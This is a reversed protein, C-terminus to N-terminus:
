CLSTCISWFSFKCGGGTCEYELTRPQLLLERAMGFREFVEFIDTLTLVAVLPRYSGTVLGGRGFELSAVFANFDAQPLKVLPGYGAERIERVDDASRAIWDADSEVLTKFEEGTRALESNEISRINMLVEM